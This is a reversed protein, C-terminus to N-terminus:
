SSGDRDLQFITSPVYLIFDILCAFCQKSICWTQVYTFALFDYCNLEIPGNEYM